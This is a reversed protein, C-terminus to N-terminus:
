QRIWSDSFKKYEYIPYNCQEKLSRFAKHIEKKSVDTGYELHLYGCIEKYGVSQVPIPKGRGDVGGGLQQLLKSLEIAYKSKLKMAREVNIYRKTINLADDYSSSVRVIVSNNTDLKSLSDFTNFVISGGQYLYAVTVKVMNQLHIIVKNRNETRNSLGLAEVLEPINVELETLDEKHHKMAQWQSLVFDFLKGDFPTIITPSQVTITSDECINIIAEYGLYDDRDVKVQKALYISTKKLVRHPVLATREKSNNQHSLKLGKQM